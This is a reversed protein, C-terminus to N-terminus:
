LAFPQYREGTGPVAAIVVDDSRTDVYCSDNSLGDNDLDNLAVAAGVSSIWGAINQMDQHVVRITRSSPTVVPMIFETFAYQAALQEREADSIRPLQAINFAIILILVAVIRRLQSRVINKM